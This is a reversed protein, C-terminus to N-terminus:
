KTSDKVLSESKTISDLPDDGNAEHISYRSKDQNLTFSRADSDLKRAIEWGTAGNKFFIDYRLSKASLARIEGPDVVCTSVLTRGAFIQAQVKIKSKNHFTIKTEVM